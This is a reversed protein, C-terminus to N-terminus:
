LYILIKISTNFYSIEHDIQGAFSMQKIMQWTFNTYRIRKFCKFVVNQKQLAYSCSAHISEQDKMTRNFLVQSNSRKKLLATIVTDEAVQGQHTESHNHLPPLPIQSIINVTQATLLFFM